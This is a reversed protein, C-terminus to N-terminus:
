LFRAIRAELARVDFGVIISKILFESKQILEQYSMYGDSMGVRTDSIHLIWGTDDM